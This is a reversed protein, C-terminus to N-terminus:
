EALERAKAAAAGADPTYADATIGAAFAETVPAGGVMIKVRQRVGAEELARVTAGMSDMTTTLLASLGVIRCEPHSCVAEVFAEPSADVGLDIIEFGTSELMMAVLNKGIDHLDGKVTGIVCQGLRGEQGQQLLPRLVTMAKQMTKASVLMEPIFLEGAQFRRGIDDMAGTMADLIEGAQCGSDLAEQVIGEIKKLKGTAVAKKVATLMSVVEKGRKKHWNYRMKETKCYPFYKNMGRENGPPVICGDLSARAIYAPGAGEASRAVARGSTNYPGFRCVM